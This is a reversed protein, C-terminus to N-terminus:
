GTAAGNEGGATGGGGSNGAGNGGSNGAGNTRSPKPGSRGEGPEATRGRADQQDRDNRGRNTEQPAQQELLGACYARVATESAGGAATELREFATADLSRGNGRDALYVRCLATINRAGKSSRADDPAKTSGTGRGTGTSEATGDGGTPPPADGTRRAGPTVPAPSTPRVTGPGDSGGGFPGPLAGSGAAVAVGGLLAAALFGGLVGRVPRAGRRRVAPRWDDRRRRRWWPVPAHAGGDRAALFAAVARREGDTDPM